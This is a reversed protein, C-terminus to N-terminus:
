TEEKLKQALANAMDDLLMLLQGDNLGVEGNYIGAKFGADAVAQRLKNGMSDTKVPQAADQAIILADTIARRASIARQECWLLKQSEYEAACDAAVDGIQALALDAALLANRPAERLAEVTPALLEVLPAALAALAADYEDFLREVGESATGNEYIFDLIADRKQRRLAERMDDNM